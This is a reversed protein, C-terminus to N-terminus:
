CPDLGHDQKAAEVNPHQGLWLCDFAEWSRTALKVRNKKKQVIRHCESCSKMKRRLTLVRNRGPVIEIHSTVFTSGIRRSGTNTLFVQVRKRLEFRACHGRLDYLNTTLIERIAEPACRSLRKFRSVIPVKFIKRTVDM